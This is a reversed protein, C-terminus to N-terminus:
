SHQFWFSHIGGSVLSNCEVPRRHMLQKLNGKCCDIQKFESGMIRQPTISEMEGSAPYASTLRLTDVVSSVVPSCSYVLYPNLCSRSFFHQSKSCGSIVHHPSDTMCIRCGTAMTEILLVRLHYWYEDEEATAHAESQIHVASLRMMGHNVPYGQLIADNEVKRM